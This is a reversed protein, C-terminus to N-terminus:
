KDNIFNEEILQFKENLVKTDISLYYGNYKGANRDSSPVIRLELEEYDVPLAYVGIPEQEIPESDIWIKEGKFLTAKGGGTFPASWSTLYNIEQDQNSEYLDGKKPFRYSDSILNREYEHSWTLEPEGIHERKGSTMEEM